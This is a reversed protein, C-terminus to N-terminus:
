SIDQSNIVENIWDGYSQNASIRWFIVEPVKYSHVEKIKEILKKLESNKTKILLQVESANTLKGQWLYLSVIENFNICAALKNELLNKALLEAKLKNSETTLVIAYDNKLLADVM